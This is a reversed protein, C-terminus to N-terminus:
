RSVIFPRSSSIGDVTARLIYHGRTYLSLDMTKSGSSLNSISESHVLRGFTDFIEIIIESNLDSDIPISIENVAPNPYPIGILNDTMTSGPIVYNIGNAIISIEINEAVPNDNTLEIPLPESTIGTEEPYLFYKSLEIQSFDFEGTENSYHCTLMNDFEDILYINVGEAFLGSHSKGGFVYEVRGSISGTGKVVGDSKDLAIDYEWSTTNLEVIEADEWFLSNGFYTPLLVGYYESEKMPEAKVVYKASPVQYFYYYGLTDFPMTDIPHYNNASDIIYLYAYGKDIPFYESFVHGGLHYYEVRRLYLQKTITSKKLEGDVIAEVTLSVRYLGFNDFTHIPNKVNSTTGDGFDWTWSIINENNTQDFFSYEKKSAGIKRVYKFRAQLDEAQFPLYINFDAIILSMTRSLFRFHLTTDIHKGYHDVTYIYLSGKKDSTCITDYYYGHDDTYVVKSYSKAAPILGESEIYVPHNSVPNGYEYNTVQGSVLVKNTKSAIAFHFSIMLLGSLLIYKLNAKNVSKNM